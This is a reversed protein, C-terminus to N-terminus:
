FRHRPETRGKLIRASHEYRTARSWGCLTVNEKDYQRAATRARVEGM